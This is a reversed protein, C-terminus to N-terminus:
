GVLLLEKKLRLHKSPYKTGGYMESGEKMQKFGVVAGLIIFLKTFINLFLTPHDMDGITALVLDGTNPKIPDSDYM